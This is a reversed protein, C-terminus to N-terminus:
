VESFGWPGVGLTGAILTAVIDPRARGSEVNFGVVRLQEATAQATAVVVVYWMLITMGATSQKADKGEKRAWGTSLQSTAAWRNPSPLM